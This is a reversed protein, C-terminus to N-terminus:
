ERRNVEVNGLDGFQYQLISLAVLPATETRLIRPGLKLGSFGHNIASEVEKDSLGGEPGVLIVFSAGAPSSELSQQSTVHPSLVFCKDAKVTKLWSEYAMPANVRPLVSRGSQECASIVVSEWHALRKAERDSDLKVNCRETLLPTIEQCGLEVAKQIIWDMKEGRAIGQALHIHVPSETQSVHVSEIKVRVSKKDIHTIVVRAEVGKGDFLTLHDDVAVRLVRSLHHSAKEDLSIIEQPTLSVPQYIRM